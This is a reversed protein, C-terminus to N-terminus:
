LDEPEPFNYTAILAMVEEKKKKQKSLLEQFRRDNHLKNLFRVESIDSLFGREIAKDLWKLCQDTENMLYYALSKQWLFYKSDQIVSSETKKLLIQALEFAKLTDGELWYSYTILNYGARFLRKDIKESNNEYYEIIARYNYDLWHNGIIEEWIVTSDNSLDFYRKSVESYGKKDEAFFQYDLYRGLFVVSSQEGLGGSNKLSRDAYVKAKHHNGLHSHLIALWFNGEDLSVRIQRPMLEMGEKYMGINFYNFMMNFAMNGNNPNIDLVKKGYELLKQRNGYKRIEVTALSKYCWECNRDLLLGQNAILEASDYYLNSSGRQPKLSIASALMGYADAYREDKQIAKKFESIALDLSARSQRNYYERGRQFHEYAEKNETQPQTIEAVETPSIKLKLEGVINEAIKRQIDFLGKANYDSTFNDAWLHQDASADILQATIMIQDGAKRVSGELLYSVRLESGIEASTKDTERYKEVSTRSTVKLEGMRQLLTLIDEMVGDAFYQQQDDNSLNKFPIVAISKDFDLNLNGKEAFYKPYLYMVTIIVVLGVIIFNSTLPKRQSGKYPNQWSQQSTTRVFGEPSREYNWAMYIAIPFGILLATLLATTSWQPLDILSGTYPVLLILLLSLIVYTAGARIVGRRQLEALFRGSLGKEEKSEPVPLGVGQLAYTKVAYDVNKLRVEGLLKAQVDTQGKIAKEIADSIYIGGPDAISELRSAVNVGDGHVDDEEVTVDGLHIGIRLKADLKGRAIEQIEVILPMSLPALSLWLEM